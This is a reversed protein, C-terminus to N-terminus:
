APKKWSTIDQKLKQYAAQIAMQANTLGITKGRAEVTQILHTVAAGFKEQGSIVKPAEQVVADIAIPAIEELTAEAADIVIEGIDEAVQVIKDKAEEAYTELRQVFASWSNSM